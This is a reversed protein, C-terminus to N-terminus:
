KPRSIRPNPRLRIMPTRFASHPTSSVDDALLSTLALAGFGTGCRQLLERRTLFHHAIEHM